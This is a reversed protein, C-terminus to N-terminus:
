KEGFIDARLGDLHSYGLRSNIRPGTQVEDSLFFIKKGLMAKFDFDDVCCRGGRHLSHEAAAHAEGQPGARGENGRRQFASRGEDHNGRPDVHEGICDDSALLDGFYL